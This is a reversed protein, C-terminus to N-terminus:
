KLKIRFLNSNACSHAPGPTVTPRSYSTIVVVSFHYWHPHVYLTFSAQTGRAESWEAQQSITPWLLYFTNGKNAGSPAVELSKRNRAENLRRDHQYSGFTKKASCRIMPSRNLSAAELTKSLIKLFHVRFMKLVRCWDDPYYQDHCSKCRSPDHPHGM